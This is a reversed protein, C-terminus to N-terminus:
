RPQRSNTPTSGFSQAQDLYTMLSPDCFVCDEESYQCSIGNGWYRSNGSALSVVLTTTGSDSVLKIDVEKIQELKVRFM